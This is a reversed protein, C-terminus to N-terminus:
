ENQKEKDNICSVLQGATPYPNDKVEVKTRGSTKVFEKLAEVYVNAKKRQEAEEPPPIQLQFKVFEFWARQLAVNDESSEQGANTRPEVAKLFAGLYITNCTVVNELRQATVDSRQSALGSAFAAYATLVVCVVAMVQVFTPRRMAGDEGKANQHDIVEDLEEKIERLRAVIYGLIFGFGAGAVFVVMREILDM